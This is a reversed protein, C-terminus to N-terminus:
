GNLEHHWYLNRGIFDFAEPWSPDRNEEIYFSAGGSFRLQLVYGDTRTAAVVRQGTLEVLKDCFGTTGQRIINAGDEVAARNYVTFREEHFVLQFYDHIFVVQTLPEVPVLKSDM